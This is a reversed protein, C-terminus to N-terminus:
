TAARARRERELQMIYRQIAIVMSAPPNVFSFGSRCSEKGHAGKV